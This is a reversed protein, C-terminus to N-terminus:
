LNQLNSNNPNAKRKHIYELAPEPGQRLGAGIRLPLPTVPLVNGFDMRAICWSGVPLANIVPTVATASGRWCCVPSALTSLFTLRGLRRLTQGVVSCNAGNAAWPQRSKLSWCLSALSSTNWFTLMFGRRALRISEEASAALNQPKKLHLIVWDFSDNDFPLGTDQAAHVVLGPVPRRLATQRLAFEAEVGHVDFGCQWLFPIFIGNGCNVELLPAQRRPWPALAKQLLALQCAVAFRRASPGVGRPYRPM